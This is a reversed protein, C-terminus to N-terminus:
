TAAGAGGPRAVRGAAAAARRPSPLEPGPASPTFMSIHLRAGPAATLDALCTTLVGPGLVAHRLPLESGDYFPIPVSASDRYLPGTVPDALVDRELRTLGDNGPRLEAAHKLHPMLAPVWRTEWDILVDTRAVPDLLLLRMINAPAQGHPFLRRFAENHALVNWEIDHIFAVADGVQEIIRHWVEAVSEGSNSHLAHPPHEKRTLRWLFAWEQEDLRLTRAVAALFDTGPNALQGNEFRNYTGVTRMLLADMQEQSLGAARRGPGPLRKPFGMTVPDLAARRKQLMEKLLGRDSASLRM